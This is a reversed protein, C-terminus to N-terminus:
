LEFATQSGAPPEVTESRRNAFTRLQAPSKRLGTSTPLDTSTPRLPSPAADNTADAHSRIAAGALADAAGGEADRQRAADAARLERILEIRREKGQFMQAQVVRGRLLRQALRTAQDLEDAAADWAECRPTAPRDAAARGARYPQISSVSAGRPALSGPPVPQLALAGAEGGAELARKADLVLQMKHLDAALQADQRQTASSRKEGKLVNEPQAVEARMLSAPLRGELAAVIGATHALAPAVRSVDYQTADDVTAGDRKVPAYVKSSYTAYEAIIDRGGTLGKSSAFHPASVPLRLRGRAMSLKRLVKIRQAQIQELGADRDDIRTQRLAEVRQEAVYESDADREVLARQLLSLRLAHAEDVERQRLEFERVEQLELLRRRLFHSAEDTAPPLSDELRRKAQAHELMAVERAGAPLTGAAKSLGALMLIQPAPKSPDLTYEPSYADTNTESERYKSQVAADRTRPEVEEFISLEHGVTHNTPALMVGPAVADMQPVMPRQFFKYRGAGTASKSDFRTAQAPYGPKTFVPDYTADMARSESRFAM